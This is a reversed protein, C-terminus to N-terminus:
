ITIVINDILRAKGLHAAVLVVLERGEPTFGFVQYDLLESHEALRQAYELTEAYRATRTYGSSEALTSWDDSGSM